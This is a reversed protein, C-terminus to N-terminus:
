DWRMHQQGKKDVIAPAPLETLVVPTRQPKWRPRQGPKEELKWSWVEFRNSAALWEYLSPQAKAKKVRSSQNSRSTAQIALAGAEGARFALIDGFGCFDRRIGPAPRRGPLPAGKPAAMPIWREVVAATYGHRRLLALSLSTPSPM